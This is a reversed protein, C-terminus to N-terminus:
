TLSLIHLVYGVALFVIALIGVSLERAFSKLVKKDIKGEKKVRYHVLIAILAILVKGVFDFSFATIELGTGM